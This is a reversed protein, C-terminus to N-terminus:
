SLKWRRHSWLWLEPQERICGELFRAYRATLEGKPLAAPADTELHFRAEYYGRRLKRTQLFIVPVNGIRAGNEPAKLFYTPTSFFPVAYGGDPHAPSQDSVLVLITPENRYRLLARRLDTAALLAAGTRSRLKLFFRDVGKSSVPMYVTLLKQRLNQAFALNGMEWNFLHGTYLQCKRGESHLQHLLTYDSRFHRDLFSRSASLCKVTEVFSDALNRYFRRAIDRREAESKEPFARLLNDMVVQRRYGVVRYMLFAIGDALVYLLRLPLLSLPYILFYM